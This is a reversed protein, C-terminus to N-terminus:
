NPPKEKNCVACGCLVHLTGAVQLKKAIIIREGIAVVECGSDVTLRCVEPQVRTVCMILLRLLVVGDGVLLFCEKYRACGFTVLWGGSLIWVM